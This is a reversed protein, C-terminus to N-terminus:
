LKFIRDMLIWKEGPKACPLAKQYKWMLDQWEKERPNNADMEAKKEFSFSENVEMIMFLRDAVHYIEMSTIGSDKIGKIIEPWVNEHYKKYAAILEEDNILDLAYCYRKSSM